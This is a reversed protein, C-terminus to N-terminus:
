QVHEKRPNRGWFQVDDVIDLGMWNINDIITEEICSGLEIEKEVIHSELLPPTKSWPPPEM